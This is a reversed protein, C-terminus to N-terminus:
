GHSDAKGYFVIFAQVAPNGIMEARSGQKQKRIGPADFCGDNRVGILVVGMTGTVRQLCNLPTTDFPDRDPVDPGPCDAMQGPRTQADVLSCAICHTFVHFFKRRIGEGFVRRGLSAGTVAVARSAAM